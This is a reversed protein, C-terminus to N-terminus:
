SSEQEKGSIRSILLGILFAIVISAISGIWDTKLTMIFITGAVILIKVKFAKILFPASLRQKIENSLSGDSNSLSKMVEGIKKGTISGMGSLVILIILGIIVWGTWNWVDIVMYIGPLLLLVTSLSFTIRLFKISPQWSLLQETTAAHNLFKLTIGEIGLGLFLGAAGLIHLFLVLLYFSM